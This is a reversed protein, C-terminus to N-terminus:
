RKPVVKGLEARIEGPTQPGWGTLAARVMGQSDLLVLRPTGSVGYAGHLGRGNAIPFPLHLETHQRRVLADDDSMALALVALGPQAKNLELAYELVQRGSEREPSYFVLLVPRGLLQALRLSQRSVLDTVVFDPAQKGPAAAAPAAPEPAAGPSLEGRRAAEVRHQVRLLAQRYPPVGPSQKVFYEIKRLLAELRSAYLGPQTLLPAAEEAFRRGQLVERRRDEFMSSVYTVRSDLEYRTVSQYTPQTHAPDRLQIEREVRYALGTQPALWIIDHRSWATSDARPRGWDLSKQEGVLKVCATGRVVETGVVRWTRPPRGAEEVDWSCGAGVRRLPVEVFAGGEFTPPGELPVAAVEPAVALRGQRDVDAVELHVSAPRQEGPRARADRQGLSTVFAVQWHQPSADLVLLTSELRFTSEFHAEPTLSKEAFTGRYVLELGPALQPALLWDGRDALQGATLLCTWLCLNAVM